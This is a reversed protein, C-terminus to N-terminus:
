SFYRRLYARKFVYMLLVYAKSLEDNPLSLVKPIGIKLRHTHLLVCQIFTPKLRSEEDSDRM